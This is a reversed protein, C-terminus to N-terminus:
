NDRDPFAELAGKATLAAGDVALDASSKAGWGPTTEQTDTAACFFQQKGADDLVEISVTARVTSM